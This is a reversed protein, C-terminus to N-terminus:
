IDASVNKHEGIVHYTYISSQKKLKRNWKLSRTSIIKMNYFNLIGKLVTIALKPTDIKKTRLQRTYHKPFLEILKERNANIFVLAEAATKRSIVGKCTFHQRLEKAYKSRDMKINFMVYKYLLNYPYTQVKTSELINFNWFRLPVLFILFM